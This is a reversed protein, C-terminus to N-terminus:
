KMEWPPPGHDYMSSGERAAEACGSAESAAM